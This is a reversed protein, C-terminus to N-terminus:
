RLCGPIMLTAGAQLLIVAGFLLGIVIGTGALFKRPLYSRPADVPVDHPRMSWARWGLAAGAFSIAALGLAVPLATAMTSWGCSMAAFTYGLNTSAIWALPGAFLAFYPATRDIWANM